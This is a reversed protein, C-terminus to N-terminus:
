PPAQPQGTPPNGQKPLPVGAAAAAAGAARMSAQMQVMQVGSALYGPQATAAAAQMAAAHAALVNPNAAMAQPSPFFKAGPMYPTGFPTGYPNVYPSGYPIGAPVPAPASPKFSPKFEAAAANLKSKGLMSALSKKPKAADDAAPPASAAGGAPPSSAGGAAQAAGAALPTAPYPKAAPPEVPKAVVPHAPAKPKGGAAHAFSTPKAVGAAPGGQGGAAPGGGQKGAWGQGGQAGGGGKGKQEVPRSAGKGVGGIAKAQGATVVAGYLDEEDIEEGGQGIQGREEMLHVNGGSSKGEIERAIRDARKLREEDVGQLTTTYMNEDFTTKVGFMNENVAFQDWERGSAQRDWGEPMEGVDAGEDFRFKELEREAYAQNSIDADTRLSDRIGESRLNMDQAAVYLYEGTTFVRQVVYEIQNRPIPQKSAGDFAKYCMRVCVGGAPTGSPAKAFVGEYIDGGAVAVAVRRGRMQTTVYAARAASDGASTM